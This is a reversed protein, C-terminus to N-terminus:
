GKGKLRFAGYTTKRKIMSPIAIAVESQLNRDNFDVFFGVEFGTKRDEACMAAARIQNFNGAILEAVHEQALRIVEAKDSDIQRLEAILTESAGMNTLILSLRTISALLFDSVQWLASTNLRLCEEIVWTFNAIRRAVFWFTAPEIGAPHVMKLRM